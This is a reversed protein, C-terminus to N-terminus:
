EWDEMLRHINVKNNDTEESKGEQHTLTIDEKTIETCFISNYFLLLELPFLMSTTVRYLHSCFYDLESVPLFKPRVSLIGLFNGSMKEVHGYRKNETNRAVSPTTEM